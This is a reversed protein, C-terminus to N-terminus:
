QETRRRVVFAVCAAGAAFIAGAFAFPMFEDGTAANSGGKGEGATGDNGEDGAADSKSGGGFIGDFLGGAAKVKLTGPQYEFVYNDASGGEPTLEYSKGAELNKPAVVTPASYGAATEATEGNVFGAVEVKGRFEGDIDMTEGVYTATLIVRGIGWSISKPEVTGDSWVYGDELTFVAEYTGADTGSVDGSIVTHEPAVLGSDQEQGNYVLGSVAQPTQVEGLAEVSLTGSVYTFRYNEAEGGAPTLTYSENVELKEPAAVTPAVYGAASGANEGGVFGAVEVAYAPNEGYKVTESTYSATLPAPAISWSVQKSGTTGDAWVYGEALTVTATYTGAKTASANSLEYAVSEAVGTQESGTYVLTKAQPNPAAGKPLIELTGSAYSFEYNDAAGGSPTLSYTGGVEVSEPLTVTPATFGSATTEDEGNVFGSYEIPSSTEDGYALKEGAYTATLSAKEINWEVEKAERTGDEWKYGPNPTVTATYDGAVTAKADGTVTYAASEPIGTQEKGTYTLDSAQPVAVREAEEVTLYSTYDPDLAPLLMGNYTYNKFRGGMIPGINLKYKGAPLDEVRTVGEPYQAVTIEPAKYEPDDVVAECVTPSDVGAGSYTVSEYWTIKYEPTQGEKVTAEACPYVAKRQIEWTFERPESTGAGTGTKPDDDQWAFGEAPTLSIAYTGADVAETQGSVTFAGMYENEIYEAAGIAEGTYSPSYLPGSGLGPLSGVVWTIKRKLPYTAGDTWAYKESDTLEVYASVEGTQNAAVGGETSYTGDDPTVDLADTSYISVKDVYSDPLYLSKPPNVVIKETELDHIRAGSLTTASSTRQASDYDVTLELAVDGEPQIDTNIPVAYLHSGKFTYTKEGESQDDTLSILAKHIRSDYKNYNGEWTTTNRADHTPAVREVKIDTIEDCTGLDQTTFIPNKIPLYLTKNGQEDVILQANM